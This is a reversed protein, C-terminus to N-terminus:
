SSIFSNSIAYELAKEFLKTQIYEYTLKEPLNDSLIIFDMESGEPIRKMVKIDAFFLKGYNTQHNEIVSYVSVPYLDFKTAGTEEYLERRATNEISENKERRGAPMEFTGRKSHKCFVWKKNYISAIIAIILNKEDVETDSHFTVKIM